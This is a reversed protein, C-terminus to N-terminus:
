SHKCALAGTWGIMAQKAQHDNTIQYTSWPSKLFAAVGEALEDIGEFLSEESLIRAMAPSRLALMPVGLGLCLLASGSETAQVYPAVAVTLSSVENLFEDHGLGDEAGVPVYTAGRKQGDSEPILGRGLTRFEAEPPLKEVLGRLIEAGKDIRVAGVFGVRNKPPNRPPRKGVTVAYPPHPTVHLDRVQGVADALFQTHVCTHARAILREELAGVADGRAESRLHRPNHHVLYLRSGWLWSSALLVLGEWPDKLWVVVLRGGRAVASVARIPGIVRKLTRRLEFRRRRPGALSPRLDIGSPSGSTSKNDPSHLLTVDFGAEVLLASLEVGYPNHINTDYVTVRRGSKTKM